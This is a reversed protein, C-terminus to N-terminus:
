EQAVAPGRRGTDISVSDYSQGFAKNENGGREWASMELGRQCRNSSINCDYTFSKPTHPVALKCTVLVERLLCKSVGDSM